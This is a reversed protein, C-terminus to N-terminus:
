GSQQCKAKSPIKEVQSRNLSTQNQHASNDREKFTIINYKNEKQIQKELNRKRDFELM